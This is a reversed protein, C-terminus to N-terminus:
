RRQGAYRVSEAIMIEGAQGATAPASSLETRLEVVKGPVDDSLTFVYTKEAFKEHIRAIQEDVNIQKATDPPAHSQGVM